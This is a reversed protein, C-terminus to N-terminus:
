TPFCKNVVSISIRITRINQFYSDERGELNILRKLKSVNTVGTFMGLFSM